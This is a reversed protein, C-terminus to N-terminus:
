VDELGQGKYRYGINIKTIFVRNVGFQKGIEKHTLIGEKLLNRIEKLENETIKARSNKFGIDDTGHEKRKALNDKLTEWKLNEPRNDRWNGNLHSCTMKKNKPLGHFAFCVLRHVRESKRKGYMIVSLYFYKGNTQINPVLKKYGKGFNSYINGDSGAYYNECNPILKFNLM